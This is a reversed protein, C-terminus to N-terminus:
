NFSTNKRGDERSADLLLSAIILRRGKNSFFSFPYCVQTSPMDAFPVGGNGLECATIGLSYIDAKTTYGNLNQLVFHINQKEFHPQHDFLRRLFSQAPGCFPISLTKQFIM